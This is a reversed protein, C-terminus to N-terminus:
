KYSDAMELLRLVLYHDRTSRGENQSPWTKKVIFKFSERLRDAQHAVVTGFYRVHSYSFFWRKFCINKCEILNNKLAVRAM